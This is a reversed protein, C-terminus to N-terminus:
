IGPAISRVTATVFHVVAGVANGLAHGTGYPNPIIFALLLIIIILGWVWRPM